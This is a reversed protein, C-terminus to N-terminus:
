KDYEMGYAVKNVSLFTEPWLSLVLMPDYMKAAKKLSKKILIM